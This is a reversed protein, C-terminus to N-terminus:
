ISLETQSCAVSFLHPEDQLKSGTSDPASCISCSDVIKTKETFSGKGTREFKEWFPYSLRPVRTPASIFIMKFSPFQINVQAVSPVEILSKLM